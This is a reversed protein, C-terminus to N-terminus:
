NNSLFHNAVRKIISQDNVNKNNKLAFIGFLQHHLHCLSFFLTLYKKFLRKLTRYCRRKRRCCTQCSRASPQVPSSSVVSRGSELPSSSFLLPSSFSPHLRYFSLCRKINWTDHLAQRAAAKNKAHETSRLSVWLTSTLRATPGWTTMFVRVQVPLPPLRLHQQLTDADGRVYGVTFVWHWCAEIKIKWGWKHGM